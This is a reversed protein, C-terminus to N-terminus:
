GLRESLAALGHRLLVREGLDETPARHPHAAYEYALDATSYWSGNAAPLLSAANPTDQPPPHQVIRRTWARVPEPAIQLVVCELLELYLVKPVATETASRLLLLDLLTRVMYESLVAPKVSVITSWITCWQQAGDDNSSPAEMRSLQETFWALLEPLTVHPPSPLPLPDPAASALAILQELQCAVHVCLSYWHQTRVANSSTQKWILQLVHQLHSKWFSASQTSGDSATAIGPNEENCYLILPLANFKKPESPPPVTAEDRAPSTGEDEWARRLRKRVVMVALATQLLAVDGRRLSSM